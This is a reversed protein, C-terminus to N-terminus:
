PNVRATAGTAIRALGYLAIPVLMGPLLEFADDSLGASTWAFVTVLGSAMMALALPAPVPFRYLRLVLLPGFAAGLASWAGLVLSFVDQGAFWAIVLALAAVALTALKGAWYSRGVRPAIDQTIAASCALIQSDATSMTAAFIGALLLGLAVEPLLLTAVAPLAGEAAAGAAEPAVGSLLEPLLVRAYLAVSVAAISFPIYWLFYITRARGIDKASRIAMSRVLIHPQGIAGFGGFVYGLLYLGLGLGLGDPVWQVLAPDAAELATALSAPGGVTVVAYVLLVLLAGLMVLAQAADTWISARLGGSFCYVVVISAGIASGLAPDWGFVGHLATAGAKLQAAAYGGLFLLTLLGAVVAVARSPPGRTDSALLAPISVAGIAASRERVKRHIWLWAAVDGLIWGLQLWVAQVGYRYTFAFLGIFMFGSNNTAASSLATLWASVGRGAVLYDESTAQAKRASLVGIATFLALCGLFALMVSM